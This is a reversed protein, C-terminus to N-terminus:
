AQFKLKYLTSSVLETMDDCIQQLFPYEGCEGRATAIVGKLGELMKVPDRELKFSSGGFKILEGECGQYSEAFRDALGSIGEYFEGLAIHKAYSGPGTVSLHAIHAATRANLLTFIFEGCNKM